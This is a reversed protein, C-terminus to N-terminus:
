WLLIRLTAPGRLSNHSVGDCALDM